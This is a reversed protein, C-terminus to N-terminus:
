LATLKRNPKDSQKFISESKKHYKKKLQNIKAEGFIAKLNQSRGM